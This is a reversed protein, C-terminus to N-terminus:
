GKRNIKIQSVSHETIIDVREMDNLINFLMKDSMTSQPKVKAKNSKIM